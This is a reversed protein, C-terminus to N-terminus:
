EIGLQMGRSEIYCRLAMDFDKWFSDTIDFTISRLTLSESLSARHRSGHLPKSGAIEGRTMM